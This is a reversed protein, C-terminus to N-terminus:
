QYQLDKVTFFCNKGPAHEDSAVLDDGLGWSPFNVNVPIDRAIM